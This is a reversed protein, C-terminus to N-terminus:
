AAHFDPYNFNLDSIILARALHMAICLKLADRLATM